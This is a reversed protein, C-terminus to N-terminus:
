FHNLKEKKARGWYYALGSAALAFVALATLYRGYRTMHRNKLAMGIEAMKLSADSLSSDVDIKATTVAFLEHRASLGGTKATFGMYAKEPLVVHSVTFCTTWKDSDVQTEVKLTRNIYTVRAHVPGETNVIKRHCGGLEHARGDTHHDYRKTGDGLMASIWPYKHHTEKNQYTDFFIGLGKFNEKYGFADGPTYKEETLWFAM